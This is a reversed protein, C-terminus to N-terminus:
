VELRVVQWLQMIGGMTPAPPAPPKRSGQSQLAKMEAKARKIADALELYEQSATDLNRSIKGLISIQDKFGQITKPQLDIVSKLADKLRKFAADTGGSKGLDKFAKQLETLKKQNEVEIKLAIKLSDLANAM